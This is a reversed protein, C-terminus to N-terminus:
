GRKRQAEQWKSHKSNWSKGLGENNSGMYTRLPSKGEMLSIGLSILGCGLKNTDKRSVKGNTTWGLEEAEKRAMRIQSGQSGRQKEAGGKTGKSNLHKTKRAEEKDFSICPTLKALLFSIVVAMRHGAKRVDYNEWVWRYSEAVYGGEESKGSKNEKFPYQLTPLNRKSMVKGVDQILLTEMEWKSYPDEAEMSAIANTLAQMTSTGGTGTGTGAREMEKEMEGMGNVIAWCDWQSFRGERSGSWPVVKVELSKLMRALTRSIDSYAAGGGRTSYFKEVVMSVAVKMVTQATGGRFFPAGAARGGSRQGRSMQVMAEAVEMYTTKHAEANGPPMGRQISQADPGRIAALLDRFGLARYTFSELRASDLWAKLHKRKFRRGERSGERQIEGEVGEKVAEKIDSVYSQLGVALTHIIRLTRYDSIESFAGESRLDSISIYQINLHARHIQKSGKAASCSDRKRTM